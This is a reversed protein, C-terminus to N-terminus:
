QVFRVKLISCEQLTRMFECLKNFTTSVQEGAKEIEELSTYQLNATNGTKRKGGWKIKWLQSEPSGTFTTHSIRNRIDEAAQLQKILETLKSLLAADKIKDDGICKLADLKRSFSAEAMLATVAHHEPLCIGGALFILSTEIQNFIFVIKGIPAFFHECSHKM